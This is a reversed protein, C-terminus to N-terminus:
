SNKRRDIVEDVFKRAAIMAPFSTTTFALLVAHRLEEAVINRLLVSM